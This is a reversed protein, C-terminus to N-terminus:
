DERLAVSPQIRWARRAPLLSAIVVLVLVFLVGVILARPDSSGMGYLTGQRLSPSWGDLTHRLLYRLIWSISVGLGVGVAGIAVSTRLVQILIHRWEAGLAIRTGFERTRSAVSEFAANGVGLLTLGIGLVCLVTVAFTVAELRRLHPASRVFVDLDEPGAILAGPFAQALERALRPADLAPSSVARTAISFKPVMRVPPLVRLMKTQALPRFMLPLARSGNILGMTFGDRGPVSVTGVIGVVRMWPGSDAFSGLKLRRGLAAGDPWFANAAIENLVVVPEAGDGDAALLGRGKTVELGLAGFTGPSVDVSLFPLSRANSDDVTVEGAGEVAFSPAAGDRRVGVAIWLGYTESAVSAQGGIAGQVRHAVTEYSLATADPLSVEAGLISGGRFGVDAERVTRMSDAFLVTASGVVVVMSAQIAVLVHRLSMLRAPRTTVSSGSRLENMPATRLVHATPALSVVITILLLLLGCFVILRDDVAVNIPAAVMEGFLRSM